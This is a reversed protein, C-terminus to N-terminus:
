QEDEPEGQVPRGPVAPEPHPLAPRNPASTEVTLSSQQVPSSTSQEISLRPPFKFKPIPKSSFPNEKIYGQTTTTPESLFNLVLEEPETKLQVAEQELNNTPLEQDSSKSITGSEHAHTEKFDIELSYKPSIYETGAESVNLSPFSIQTPTTEQQHQLPICRYGYQNHIAPHHITDVV